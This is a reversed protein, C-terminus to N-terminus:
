PSSIEVIVDGVVPFLAFIAPTRFSLFPCPLSADM